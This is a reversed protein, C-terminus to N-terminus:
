TIACTAENALALASARVNPVRTARVLERAAPLYSNENGTQGGLNRGWCAVDGDGLLACAHAGGAVVARADRLGERRRAAASGGDRLGAGLQGYTNDGLCEVFGDQTTICRFDASGVALTTARDSFENPGFARAGDPQAHSCRVWGAART